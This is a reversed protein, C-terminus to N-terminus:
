IQEERPLLGFADIYHQHIQGIIGVATQTRGGSVGAGALPRACGGALLVMM